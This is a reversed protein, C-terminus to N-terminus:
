EARSLWRGSLHHMGHTAIRGIRRSALSLHKVEGSAVRSM